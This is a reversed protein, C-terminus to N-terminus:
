CCSRPTGFIRLFRFSFLSKKLTQTAFKSATLFDSKEQLPIQNLWPESTTIKNRVEKKHIRDM